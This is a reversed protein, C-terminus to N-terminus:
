IVNYSFSNCCVVLKPIKIHYYLGSPPSMTLHFPWFTWAETHLPSKQCQLVPFLIFYFIWPCHPFDDREASLTTKIVTRMPLGYSRLILFGEWPVLSKLLRQYFTFEARVHLPLYFCNCSHLFNTFCSYKLASSQTVAKLFASSNGWKSYVGQCLFM